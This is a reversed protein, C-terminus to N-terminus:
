PVEVGSSFLNNNVGFDNQSLLDAVLDIRPCGVMHVHNM